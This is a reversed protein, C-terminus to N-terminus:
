HRNKREREGSKSVPLRRCTCLEWRMTCCKLRPRSLYRTLARRFAIEPQKEENRGSITRRERSRRMCANFDLWKSWPRLRLCDAISYYSMRQLLPFNLFSKLFSFFQICDGQKKPPAVELSTSKFGPKNEPLDHESEAGPIQYFCRNETPYHAM